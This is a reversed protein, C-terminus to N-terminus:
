WINQSRVYVAEPHTIRHITSVEPEHHTDREWINAGVPYVLEYHTGKRRVYQNRYRTWPAHDRNLLKDVWIGHDIILPGERSLCRTIGTQELYIPEWVRPWLSHDRCCRSMCTHVNMDVRVELCTTEKQEISMYIKPGTPFVGSKDTFM